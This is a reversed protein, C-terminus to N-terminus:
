RAGLRDQREQEILRRRRIEHEIAYLQRCTYALERFLAHDSLPRLRLMPHDLSPRGEPPLPKPPTRM